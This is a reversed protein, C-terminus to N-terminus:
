RSEEPGDFCDSCLRSLPWNVSCGNEARAGPRNAREAGLYLATPVRDLRAIRFLQFLCKRCHHTLPGGIERHSGVLNSSTMLRVVAWARPRVM